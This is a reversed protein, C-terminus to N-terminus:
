EEGVLDRAQLILTDLIDAESGIEDRLREIDIEGSTKYKAISKVFAELPSGNDTM